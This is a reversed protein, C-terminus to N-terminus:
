GARGFLRVADYAMDLDYGRRVLLGLARDRGRDDDPPSPFRRRLLVVAADLAEDASQTGLAAEILEPPVGADRLKREIRESGWSDLNRRDEAYRQAFRADDLYGQEELTGVAEDITAPEVRKAELHRRIEVVTRDRHGLYRYALDLAHQLRAAPDVAREATTM